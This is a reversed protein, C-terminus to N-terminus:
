KEAVVFIGTSLKPDFVSLSEHPVVKVTYGNKELVEQLQKQTIPNLVTTAVGRGQWQRGNFDLVVINLNILLDDRFDYFVLFGHQDKQKLQSRFFTLSSFRDQKKLIAEYDPLQVIITSKGHKLSSCIADIDKELNLSHSIVGGMIVAADFDKHASKPLSARSLKVFEIREQIAQPLQDKKRNAVAIMAESKDIGLVSFGEKALAIAHEGTACGVDIIKQANNHKLLKVLFPVESKLREEWNIVMDYHRAIWDHFKEQDWSMSLNKGVIAKFIDSKSIIGVLNEKEDIVPLRGVKQVQMLSQAKLLPEDKTITAVETSMIKEAPYELIDRAREEMGEFDRAHLSDEIYERMSPYFQALIDRETIMGILRKNSCVAVGNIGYGFILRAVERLPTEPSVHVVDTQMVDKVRMGGCQVMVIRSKLM